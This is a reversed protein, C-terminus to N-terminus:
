KKRSWKWMRYFDKVVWFIIALAIIYGAIM